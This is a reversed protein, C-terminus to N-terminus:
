REVYNEKIIKDINELIRLVKTTEVFFLSCPNSASFGRAMANAGYGECDIRHKISNFYDADEKYATTYNPGDVIGNLIYFLEYSISSQM